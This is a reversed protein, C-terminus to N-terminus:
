RSGLYNCGPALLRAVFGYNDASTIQRINFFAFCLWPFCVLGLPVTTTSPSGETPRARPHSLRCRHQRLLSPTRPARRRWGPAPLSPAPEWGRQQWLAPFPKADGSAVGLYCSCPTPAWTSSIGPCPAAATARLPKSTMCLGAAAQLSSTSAPAAGQVCTPHLFPNPHDRQGTGATRLVPSLSLGEAAPDQRRLQALELCQLMRLPWM